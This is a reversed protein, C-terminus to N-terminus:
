KRSHVNRGGAVLLLLVEEEDHFLISGFHRVQRGSSSRSAWGRARWLGITRICKNLGGRM